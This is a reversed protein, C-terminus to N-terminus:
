DSSADGPARPLPARLRVARMIEGFKGLHYSCDVLWDFTLGRLGVEVVPTCGCITGWLAAVSEVGAGVGLVEEMRRNLGNADGLLEEFGQM